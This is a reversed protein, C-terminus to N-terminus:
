GFTATWEPLPLVSSAAFKLQWAGFYVYTPGTKLRPATNGICAPDKSGADAEQDSTQARALCDKRELPGLKPPRRGMKHSAESTSARRLDRSGRPQTLGRAMRTPACM